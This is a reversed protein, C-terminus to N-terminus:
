RTRWGSEDRTPISVKRSFSLSLKLKPEANIYSITVFVSDDVTILVTGRKKEVIARNREETTVQQVLKGHEDEVFVQPLDIDLGILNLFHDVNWNGPIIMKKFLKIITTTAGFTKFFVNKQRLGYQVGSPANLENFAVLGELVATKVASILIEKFIAETSKEFIISVPEHGPPPPSPPSPLELPKVDNLYNEVEKLISHKEIKCQQLEMELKEMKRAVKDITRGTRKQFQVLEAKYLKTQKRCDLKYKKMAARYLSIGKRQKELATLKLKNLASLVQPIKTVEFSEVPVPQPLLQLSPQASHITTLRKRQPPPPSPPQIYRKPKSVRRSGSSLLEANLEDIKGEYIKQLHTTNLWYGAIPCTYIEHTLMNYVEYYHNNDRWAMYNTSPWGKPYVKWGMRELKGEIEDMEDDSSIPSHSAGEMICVEAKFNSTLDAISM